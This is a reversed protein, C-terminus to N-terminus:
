KALLGGHEKEEARASIGGKEGARGAWESVRGADAEDFDVAAAAHGLRENPTRREANPTKGRV